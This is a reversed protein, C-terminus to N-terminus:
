APKSPACNHEDPPRHTVVQAKSVNQAQLSRRGQGVEYPVREGEELHRFGSGEIASFHV